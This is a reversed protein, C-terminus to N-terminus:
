ILKYTTKPRLISFTPSKTLNEPTGHVGWAGINLVRSAEPFVGYLGHEPYVRLNFNWDFGSQVLEQGSNTSYDYDWNDKLFNWRDSWTGFVWPNFSQKKSVHSPIGQERDSFAHVTSVNSDNQFEESAWNFYELIDASVVLDDETRLVFDYEMETFLENLVVYPHMLVGYNIEQEWVNIPIDEIYENIIELVPTPDVGGDISIFFEWGETARVDSWSKLVESLYETRDFVTLMIAKKM